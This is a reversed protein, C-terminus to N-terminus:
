LDVLFLARDDIFHNSSILSGRTLQSQYIVVGKHIVVLHYGRCTIAIPLDIVKNFKLILEDFERWLAFQCISCRFPSRTLKKTLHFGKYMSTFYASISLSAIVALFNNKKRCM